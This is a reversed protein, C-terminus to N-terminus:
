KINILDSKWMRKRKKLVNYQKDNIDIPIPEGEAQMYWDPAPGDKNDSNFEETFKEADKITLCVMYDDIKRGWGRESEVVPVALALNNGKKM